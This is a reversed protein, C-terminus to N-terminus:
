KGGTILGWVFDYSAYKATDYGPQPGTPSMDLIGTYPAGTAKEFLAGSHCTICSSTSIAVDANLPEIVSNGLLKTGDSAVFQTQTAKMCYNDWVKSIGANVAMSAVPQTRVCPAYPQWPTGNPAVNAITAGYSDKCGITDCRGPNLAHEFDAWVWNKTQKSFFHFALLAYDATKGNVQAASTYYKEKVEAVSINRWKAVDDVPAWDGKFEIADSPLDVTKGAKAFAARGAKSDLANGVIYQFSAWNRRVEEGICGNTPFGDGKAAGSLGSPPCSLQTTPPVARIGVSGHPKNVGLASPRLSKPTGVAPWQAPNAVYIDQDSAWTEFEVKPQGTNGAPSVIQVFIQWALEDPNQGWPLPDAAHAVPVSLLSILTFALLKRM